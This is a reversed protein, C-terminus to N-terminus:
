STGNKYKWNFLANALETENDSPIYKKVIWEHLKRFM